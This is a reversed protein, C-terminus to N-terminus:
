DILGRARALRALREKLREFKKRLTAVSRPDADGVQVLSVEEWPLEQDVRLVLLSQEEPSLAERLAELSRLQGELRPETTHLEAALASAEGTELRRGHRRYTDNRVRLAAHWAVRFCWSRLPAEFRFEPLGRWLDEAFVSFADRADDEDRIISRLYRLVHPGLERLVETAAGRADGAALLERTRQELREGPGV